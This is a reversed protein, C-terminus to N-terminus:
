SARAKLGGKVYKKTWKFKRPDRGLRFYKWCKSSCFWLIRGDSKVFGHGTGPEIEYGCFHCVRRAYVSM